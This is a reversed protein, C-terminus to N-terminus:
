DCIHNLWIITAILWIIWNGRFITGVLMVIIYVVTAEDNNLSNVSHRAKQVPKRNKNDM